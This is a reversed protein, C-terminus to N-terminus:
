EQLLPGLRDWLQRILLFPIEASDPGTGMRVIVLNKSPIVMLFQGNLGMAQYMDEPAAPILPGDFERDTRPLKYFSKGNLWTLYGYSPNLDQSANSLTQFFDGSYIQKEEWQGEALMLLGFRAMSRPTSYFVNNQGSKQWFGKMGIPEGIKEEYFDQFSMGSASALVQELVTYPGNHYSWRSGAKAKFQFDKPDISNPNAVQEDLGTTMTLHNRIRIKKEDANKMSTWGKGLYKQTRDKIKLLKENEAIGILTATLTKGASAWYWFSEENMPGLGTLKNGWYEEVVLKGDKLIIFARTNTGSVWELFQGMGEQDLGAEKLSMKEWDAADTPPFYLGSSQSNQAFSIFSACYLGAFILTKFCATRDFCM